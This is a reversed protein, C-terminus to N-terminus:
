KPVINFLERNYEALDRIRALDRENIDRNAQCKILRKKM